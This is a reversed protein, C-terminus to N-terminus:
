KKIIGSTIKMGTSGTFASNMSFIGSLKREADYQKEAEDLGVGRSVLGNTFARRDGPDCGIGDENLSNYLKEREDVEKNPDLFVVKDSVRCEINHLGLQSLYTPIKIGINGDKGNRKADKEFLHQLIGLQVISSQDVESLYLNSMGSIWHPEFCIIRGQDSLCNIMNTLTKMPDSMHLLLAHCIAIDYTDKPKYENVDCQIFDVDYPLGKFIDRAKNLLQEGLDLGTYSSGEPLLPLLKLGLYGYGCGFDIVRVPTSLKWVTKVLFELYDDNYYLNRTNMLYDIKKDWYYDAM